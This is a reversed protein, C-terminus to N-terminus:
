MGTVPLKNMKESYTQNREKIEKKIEPEDKPNKVTIKLEENLTLEFEIKNELKKYGDITKM